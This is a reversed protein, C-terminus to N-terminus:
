TQVELASEALASPTTLFLTGIKTDPGSTWTGDANKRFDKCKIKAAPATETKTVDAQQANASVCNAATRLSETRM